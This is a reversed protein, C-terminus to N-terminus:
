YSLAETFLKVALGFGRYFMDETDTKYILRFDDMLIRFTNEMEPNQAHLFSSLEAQWGKFPSRESPSPWVKEQPTLDGIYLQHLISEM